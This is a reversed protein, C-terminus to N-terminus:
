KSNTQQIIRKLQETLARQKVKEEKVQQNIEHRKKRLEYHKNSLLQLENKYGEIREMYKVRYELEKTLDKKENAAFMDIQNENVSYM